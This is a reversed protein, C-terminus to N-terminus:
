CSSRDGFIRPECIVTRIRESIRAKTHKTVNPAQGAAACCAGGAGCSALSSTVTTSGLAPTRGVAVTASVPSSSAVLFAATAGSLVDSFPSAIKSLSTGPRYVSIASNGPKSVRLMSTRTRAPPSLLCTMTRGRLRMSSATVTERSRCSAAASRAGSKPVANVRSCISSSDSSGSSILRWNVSIAPGSATKLTSLKSPRSRGGLACILDTRMERSWNAASLWQAPPRWMSIMVCGPRPGTRAFVRNPKRSLEISPFFEIVVVLGSECFRLRPKLRPPVSTGSFADNEILM